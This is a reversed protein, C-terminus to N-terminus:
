RRPTRRSGGTAAAVAAATGAHALHCLAIALADARDSSAIESDLSLLRAVMAGVQGKEARGNGTVSRKVVAPTYEVVPVGVGGLVALLVGRAHALQLASRANVGHFPSEVAATEPEVRRVIKEFETRLRHLREAFGMGTVLRIDGSEILVPRNSTGSVVGWGTRQSGPDVGLVRM